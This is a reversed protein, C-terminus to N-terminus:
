FDALKWIQGVQKLDTLASIVTRELEEIWPLQVNQQLQPVIGFQAATNSAANSFLNETEGEGREVADYALELLIVVLRAPSVPEFWYNVKGLPRVLSKVLAGLQGGGLRNIQNLNIGFSSATFEAAQIPRLGDTGYVHIPRTKLRLIGSQGASIVLEPVEGLQAVFAMCWPFLLQLKEIIQKLILIPTKLIVAKLEKYAFILSSKFKATHFRVVAEITACICLYKAWLPYGSLSNIQPLNNLALGYDGAYISCLCSCAKETNALWSSSNYSFRLFEAKGERFYEKRKDDYFPLQFAHSILEHAKVFSNIRKSNFELKKEPMDRLALVKLRHAMKSFYFVDNEFELFVDSEILSVFAQDECNWFLSFALHFANSQKIDEREASKYLESYIKSAENSNGIMLICWSILSKSAFMYTKLDIAHALILAESALFRAGDFDELVTKSQAVLFSLRMEIELIFFSKKAIGKVEQLLDLLVPITEEVVKPAQDTSFIGNQLVIFATQYKGYIQFIKEEACMLRASLSIAREKSNKEVGIIQAARLLAIDSNLNILYEALVARTVNPLHLAELRWNEYESPIYLDPPPPINLMENMM